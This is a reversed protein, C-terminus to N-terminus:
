LKYTALESPLNVEGISVGHRKLIETAKDMALMTGSGAMAWLATKIFAARAEKSSVTLLPDVEGFALVNVVLRLDEVSRTFFGCTDLSFSILKVGEASIASLTPKMAFIGRFVAPRIVSGRNQSGFSLPVQFDSVAAISGASSGGPTRNTTEPGANSVTFEISTTKDVSFILVPVQILLGFIQARTSRLISVTSADFNPRKGEYLTFGTLMSHIYM